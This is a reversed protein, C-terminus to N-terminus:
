NKLAKQPREKKKKTENQTMTFEMWQNIVDPTCAHSFEKFSMEFSINARFCGSVICCYLWQCADKFSNAEHPSKGTLDEFDIMAGMTIEVPYDKGNVELMLINGKKETM